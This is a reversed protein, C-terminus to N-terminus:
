LKRKEKWKREGDLLGWNRKKKHRGVLIKNKKKEKRRERLGSMRKEHEIKKIKPNRGDKTELWSVAPEEMVQNALKGLGQSGSTSCRAKKAM